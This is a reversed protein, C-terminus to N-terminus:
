RLPIVVQRATQTSKVYKVKQIEATSLFVGNKDVPRNNDTARSDKDALISRTALLKGKCKAAMSDLAKTASIAEFGTIRGAAVLKSIGQSAKEITELDVEYQARSYLPM